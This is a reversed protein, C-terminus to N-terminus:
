LQILLPGHVRRTLEEVEVKMKWLVFSVAPGCCSFLIDVCAVGLIRKVWEVGWCPKRSSSSGGSSTSKIEDSSAGVYTVDRQWIVMFDFLM